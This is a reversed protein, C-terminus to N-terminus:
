LLDESLKDIDTLLAIKNKKLKALTQTLHKELAEDQMIIDEDSAPPLPLQENENVKNIQGYHSQVGVKIQFMQM